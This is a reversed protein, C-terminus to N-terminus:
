GQANLGVWTRGGSASKFAMFVASRAAEIDNASMTTTAIPSQAERFDANSQYFANEWEKLDSIDFLFEVDRKNWSPSGPFPLYISCYIEDPRTKEIFRIMRDIHESRQNPIGVMYYHKVSLGNEHCIDTAKEIQEATEGKRLFSLIGDDPCEVGISVRLCGSNAMKQVLFSDLSDARVNCMWKTDPFRRSISDLLMGTHRKNAVFQDDRFQLLRIHHEHILADIESEIRTVSHFRTTNGFVEKACFICSYRCGRSSMLPAVTVGNIAYSSYDALQDRAPFPIRDIDTIPAANIVRNTGRYNPWEQALRAFEFEGEGRVVFDFSDTFYTPMATPQPGGAVTTCNSLIVKCKKAIMCAEYSLPMTATVGVIQPESEALIKELNGGKNLDLVSVTARDLLARTSSAIYSIGLHQDLFVHRARPVILLIRSASM